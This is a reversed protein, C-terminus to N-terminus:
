SGAFLTGVLALILVLLSLGAVPWRRLVGDAHELVAGLAAAGRGTVSPAMAPFDGSAGLERDPWPLMGLVLLGVILIPWVDGWLKGWDFAGALATSVATSADIGARVIGIIDFVAPPLLGLLLACLALALVVLEQTRGPRKILTLFRGSAAPASSLANGLVWFLYAATLLGGSQMILGWWWQGSGDAAAGLLTKVLYGGSPRLGMLSLGALGFALLTIPLARGIGGLRRIQDHGLAGAIMGAAMFMAAKACAHSVVQLMGGTLAASEDVAALPFILFLYGIQAVTSYAILLKLRAQRLAVLNGLLIVGAGMVGLIQVGPLSLLLFFRGLHRGGLVLGLLLGVVPLMLPLVLIIGGLDAIDAILPALISHTEM